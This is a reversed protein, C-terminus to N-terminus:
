WKAIERKMTTSSKFKPYKQAKTTKVCNYHANFYQREELQHITFKGLDLFALEGDEALAEYILEQMGKMVIAMDRQRMGVKKALRRRFEKKTM